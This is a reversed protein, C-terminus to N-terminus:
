TEINREIRIYNRIEKGRNNLHVMTLDRGWLIVPYGNICTQMNLSCSTYKGIKHTKSNKLVNQLCVSIITNIVITIILLIM